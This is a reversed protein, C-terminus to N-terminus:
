PGLNEVLVAFHNEVATRYSHRVIARSRTAAVDSSRVRELLVLGLTYALADDLNQHADTTRHWVVLVNAFDAALQHSAYVVRIGNAYTSARM